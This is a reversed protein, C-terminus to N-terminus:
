AERHFLMATGSNRKWAPPAPRPRTSHLAFPRMWSAFVDVPRHKSLFLTRDDTRETENGPEVKECLLVFGGPRVVRKIEGLVTRVDDDVMHQLVTFTMAFDISADALTPLSLISDQQRFDVDPLLSRATAVLHPEREIGIVEDAFESLAMILRGYGCGVEVARRVKTERTVDVLCDRIVGRDLYAIVNGMPGQPAVNEVGFVYRTTFGKGRRFNYLVRRPHRLVYRLIEFSTTM